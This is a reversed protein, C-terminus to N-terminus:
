NFNTSELLHYMQYIKGNFRSGNLRTSCTLEKSLGKSHLETLNEKSKMYQVVMISDTILGKVHNKKLRVIRSKGNYNKIDVKFIAAQNDCNITLALVPNDWILVNVLINKVM